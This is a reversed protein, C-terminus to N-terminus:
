RTFILPVKAISPVASVTEHLLSSIFTFAAPTPNQTFTQTERNQAHQGKKNKYHHFFSQPLIAKGVLTPGQEEFCNMIKQFPLFFEIASLYKM